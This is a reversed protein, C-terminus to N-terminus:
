EAAVDPNGVEHEIPGVRGDPCCVDQSARALNCGAAPHTFGLTVGKDHWDDESGCEDGYESESESESERKVSRSDLVLVLQFVLHLQVRRRATRPANLSGYRWGPQESTGCGASTCFRPEVPHAADM